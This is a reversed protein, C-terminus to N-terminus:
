VRGVLEDIKLQEPPLGGDMIHFRSIYYSLGDSLRFEEIKFPLFCIEDHASYRMFAQSIENMCHESQGSNHNLIFLFIRCGRIARVISGAFDDGCDRPAYWCSIGAAELAAAAMKVTEAASSTHYSIFVDRRDESM